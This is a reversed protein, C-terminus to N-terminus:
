SGHSVLDVIWTWHLQVSVLSFSLHVHHGDSRYIIKHVNAHSANPQSSAMATLYHISWDYLEYLSKNGTVDSHIEHWPLSKFHVCALLFGNWSMTISVLVMHYTKNIGVM